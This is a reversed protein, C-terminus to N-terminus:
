PTARYNLNSKATGSGRNGGDTEAFTEEDKKKPEWVFQENCLSRFIMKTQGIEIVDYDKMEVPTLLLQGNVYINNRSNSQYIYFKNNRDDYAIIANTGKSISNDFDIKIDNEHSRGITNKEGHIKFDTGRKAGELCILWGRVEDTEENVYTTAAFQPDVPQTSPFPTSAPLIPDTMPPRPPAQMYPDMAETSPFMSGGMAPAPQKGLPVTVNLSGGGNCFPCSSNKTDDYLHGNPCQQMAM